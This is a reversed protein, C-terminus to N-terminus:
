RSFSFDVPAPSSTMAAAAAAMVFANKSAVPLRMRSNGRPYVASTPLGAWWPKSCRDRNIRM